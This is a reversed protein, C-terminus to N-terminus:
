GTQDTPEFWYWPTADPDPDLRLRVPLPVPAEDAVGRVHGFVVPGNDDIRVQGLTYPTALDPRPVHVTTFTLLRGRAAFPVLDVKANGCRHCVARAPWAPAACDACRSGVLCQSVRDVRLREGTPLQELAASLEM